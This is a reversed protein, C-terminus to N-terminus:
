EKPPAEILYGKKVLLDRVADNMLQDVTTHERAALGKLQARMERTVRFMVAVDRVEKVTEAVAGTANKAGEYARSAASGIASAAAAVGAIFGGPPAGRSQEIMDALARLTAPDLKELPAAPTEAM